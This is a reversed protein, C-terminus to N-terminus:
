GENGECEAVIGRRDWGPLVDDRPALKWGKDKFEKKALIQTVWDSRSDAYSPQKIM